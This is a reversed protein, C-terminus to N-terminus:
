VGTSGFGGAGRDSSPLESVEEWEIDYQLVPLLQVIKDGVKYIKNTNIVAGMIYWENSLSQNMVLDEPQFIYKFRVKIEGRYGIDITAPPNALLLNYKSISSRPRLDTHFKQIETHGRFSNIADGLSASPAIFLDTGYEIYDISKYIDGGVKEGIIYPGNAAVIDYGADGANARRPLILNDTNKYYIKM